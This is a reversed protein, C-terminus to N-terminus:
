FLTLRPRSYLLQANCQPVFLRWVKRHTAGCHKQAFEIFSNEYPFYWNFKLAVDELFRSKFRTWRRHIKLKTRIM